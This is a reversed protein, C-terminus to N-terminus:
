YLKNVFDLFEAIIDPNWYIYVLLGALTVLGIAVSDVIDLSNKKENM